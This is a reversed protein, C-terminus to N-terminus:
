QRPAQQRQAKWAKLQEFMQESSINGNIDSILWEELPKHWFPFYIVMGRNFLAAFYSFSSRSIILADATAMGKLTEIADLNIRKQLNPIVDFDEIRNMKPDIVVPRALRGNMGHAQPTVVFAKSPVETYLECVSFPIGLQKLANVIKLTSAVYYSNPLM